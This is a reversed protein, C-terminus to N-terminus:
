TIKEINITRQIQYTIIKDKNKKNTMTTLENFDSELLTKLVEKFCNKKNIRYYIYHENWYIFWIKNKSQNIMEIISNDIISRITGSKKNLNTKKIYYIYMGISLNNVNDIYKFNSIENKYKNNIINLKKQEIDM